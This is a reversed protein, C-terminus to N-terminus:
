TEDIQWSNQTADIAARYEDLPMAVAPEVFGHQDDTPDPRLQLGPAIPEENATWKGQGMSWAFLNDNGAAGPVISKLRIPVMRAPMRNLAAVSPTVSMGNNAPSVVGSADPAIDRPVRVGLASATEGLVPNNGDKKMVRYIKPM